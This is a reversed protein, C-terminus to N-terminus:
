TELTWSLQAYTSSNVSNWVSNGSGDYSNLINAFNYDQMETASKVSVNNGSAGNTAQTASIDLYFSDTLKESDNNFGAVGGAYRLDSQYNNIANILGTNYSVTIEGYETSSIYNNYGAIGGAYAYESNESTSTVNGSNHTNKILGSYNDDSNFNYGAIGGAYGHVTVAGSRSEALVDGNNYSQKIDGSNYGTLGGAFNAVIYSGQGSGSQYISGDNYGALGGAYLLNNPNTPEVSVSVTVREILGLNYGTIGGAYLATGADSLNPKVDGIVDINRVVGLNYGAIAGTYQSPSTINVNQLYLNRIEATSGVYGFMGSYTYSNTITLNNINNYNGNFGGTFPHELTGIPEFNSTSLTRDSTLEYYATPNYKVNNLEDNSTIEFPSIQSGNGSAFLDFYYSVVETEDSPLSGSYFATVSVEYNGLETLYYYTNEVTVEPQLVNEYTITLRYENAYESETWSVVGNEITLNTPMAPKTIVIPDRVDSNVINNNDGLSQITVYHEGIDLQEQVTYNQGSQIIENVVIDGQKTIVLNYNNALPVQTWDLTYIGNEENLTINQPTELKTVQLPGGSTGGVKVSNLRNQSDGNTQIYVSYDGSEFDPPLIYETANSDLQITYEQTDKIITATYGNPANVGDWTIIGQEVRLNTVADLKYVEITETYNSNLKDVSNGRAKVKINYNGQTFEDPLEYSTRIGIYFEEYNVYLVYENADAIPSWALKGNEVRFDQVQQLKEATISNSLNSTLYITNDGVARVSLDYLGAAFEQSLEYETNNVANTFEGNVNIQYGTSSPISDYTILGNLLGLNTPSNLKTADILNSYESTIYRSGDGIARVEVQYNGAEFREDLLYSTVDSGTLLALETQVKDYEGTQVNEKYVQVQYNVAGTVPIWSIQGNQITLNTPKNMVSLPVLNSYSSNVKNGLGDGSAGLTRVKIEYSGPQYNVYNMFDYSQATTPIVTENIVLEYGNDGTLVSDWKIVAEEVRLNSPSQLKNIILTESHKSAFTELGAAYVKVEYESAPYSDDPEFRTADEVVFYNEGVVVVYEIADVVADWEIEGNVVRVNQPTAIRSSTIEPTYESTIYNAGDGFASLKVTYTGQSYSQDLAYLGGDIMHQNTQMTDESTVELLYQTANSVSRWSLLGNELKFQTPTELKEFSLETSDIGTLSTFSDGLARVKVLYEGDPLNTLNYSNTNTYYLNDTKIYEEQYIPKIWVEYDSVDEIHQWSVESNEIKINNVAPLQYAQIEQTYESNLFQTSDGLAKISISYFENSTGNLYYPFDQETLITEEGNIKLLYNTASVVPTMDIYGNNLSPAEPTALKTVDITQTFNSNLYNVNNGKAKIKVTYSTDGALNLSYENIATNFTNSGAVIEYSTAGSSRNWKLLGDEIRFNSPANLKEVIFEGTFRSYLYNEAQSQITFTYEGAPLQENAEFFTNNITHNQNDINLVYRTANLAEKWEIIGDVVAVYSPSALKNADIIQSYNSGTYTSGDGNAKISISYLGASYEDSLEFNTQSSVQVTENNIKLSYSQALSVQDWALKGGEVRLNAPTQLKTTSFEISFASDLISIDNGKAKVKFNYTTAVADEELSYNTLTTTHEVGNIDVIYSNAGSVAQWVIGGAQYSVNEPTELRKIEIAESYNSAYANEEDTTARLKVTYTQAQTLDLEYTTVLGVNISAGNLLIEYGQAQTVEDWTIINQQNQLNEPTSLIKATIIDTTNSELITYNDGIAKVAYNNTANYDDIVYETLSTATQEVDNIVVVYGTADEVEDWSLIGNELSFSTPSSLTVPESYVTVTAYDSKNSGDTTQVIVTTTGNAVATLEGTQEDIVAINMDQVYYRLEKNQANEPLAIANFTHTDNVLLNVEEVGLEVSSVLVPGSNDPENENGCAAFFASSIVILAILSIRVLKHMDKEWKLPV